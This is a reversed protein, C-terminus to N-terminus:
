GYEISCKARDLMSQIHGTISGIHRGIQSIAEKDLALIPSQRCINIGRQCSCSTLTASAILDPCFTSSGRTRCSRCPQASQLLLGPDKASFSFNRRSIRPKITRYPIGAKQIAILGESKGYLFNQHFLNRM